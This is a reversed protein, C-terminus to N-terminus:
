TCPAPTAAAVPHFFVDGERRFHLTVTGTPLELHASVTRTHTAQRAFNRLQTGSVSERYDFEGLM